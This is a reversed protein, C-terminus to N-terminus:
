GRGTDDLVRGAYITARHAIGYRPGRASRLAGAATGICHTGHGVGDHFPQHDGVFNKVVVQRGSFDPHTRDFGTDLVALKVGAGTLQSEAVRTATLGWTAQEAAAEIPQAPAVPEIQELLKGALADVADRYGRLYDTSSADVARAIREPELAAVG